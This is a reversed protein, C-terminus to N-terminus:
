RVHRPDVPKGGRRREYYLSAATVSDGSLKGIPEGAVVNEGVRTFLEDIGGMLSHDGNGHQLIVLIRYQRFPGAFKVTGDLPATVVAGSHAAIRLGQSKSGGPIIDGYGTEVRGVVPMQAGRSFWAVLSQKVSDKKSLRPTGLGDVLDRLDRAQAALQRAKRQSDAFAQATQNYLSRRKAIAKKLKNQEAMLAAMEDRLANEQRKNKERLVALRELTKRVAAARDALRPLVDELLAYSRATDIPASPRALLASPPLRDLRQFAMIMRALSTRQAALDREATAIAANTKDKKKEISLRAKERTQVDRTINVLADRLEDLDGQIDKVNEEAAAAKKKEAALRAQVDDLKAAHAPFVFLVIFVLLIRRM